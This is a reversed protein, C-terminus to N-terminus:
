LHYSSAVSGLLVGDSGSHGLAADQAGCEEYQKIGIDVLAERMSYLEAREGIVSGHVTQDSWVM